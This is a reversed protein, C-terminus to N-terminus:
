RPLVLRSATASRGERLVDNEGTPVFGYREYMRRADPNADAVWLETELDREAAWGVVVDLVARGVGRGRWAPDTWMGVVMLTGPRPQWGAGMGVAADDVVALVAPGDTGALRQRWLAPLFAVEREHTSGYADPDERLSRLRVERWARWDEPTAHGITIRAM